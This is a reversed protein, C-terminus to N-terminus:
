LRIHVTTRRLTVCNDQVHLLFVISEKVWSVNPAAHPSATRPLFIPLFARTHPATRPVNGSRSTKVGIASSLSFVVWSQRRRAHTHALIQFEMVWGHFFRIEVYGLVSEPFKQYTLGVVSLIGVMEYGICGKM